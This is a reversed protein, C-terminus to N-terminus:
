RRPPRGPRGPRGPRPPAGTPEDMGPELNKEEKPEWIYDRSNESTDLQLVEIPKGVPQGKAAALRQVLVQPKGNQTTLPLVRYYETIKATGSNGGKSEFELVFVSNPTLKFTLVEGESGSSYSGSDMDMMGQPGMGPPIPAGRRGTPQPRGQAGKQAGQPNAMEAATRPIKRANRHHSTLFVFPVSQNKELIDKKVEAEFEDGQSNAITVLTRNQSIDKVTFDTGNIKKGIKAGIPRRQGQVQFTARWENKDEPAGGDSVRTLQLPLKQRAPAGTVRLLYALAPRSQANNPDTGARYEEYNTFGDNDLDGSADHPYRYHLGATAKEYADPLGDGDLDDEPQPDKGIADQETQCVPCKEALYPLIYGCSEGKCVVYQGGAFLQPAEKGNPSQALELNNGPLQLMHDLTAFRVQEIVEIIKKAKILREVQNRLDETQARAAREKGDVLKIGMILIILCVALILKEYHKALFDM